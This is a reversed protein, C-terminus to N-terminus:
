RSHDPQPDATPLNVTLAHGNIILPQEVGPLLAVTPFDHQMLWTVFSVTRQVASSPTGNRAIKIVVPAQRLRFVANTHGRMLEAGATDLGAIAGTQAPVANVEPPEFGGHRPASDTMPYPQSVPLAVTMNVARDGKRGHGHM